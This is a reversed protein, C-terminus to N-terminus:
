RRFYTETYIFGIKKEELLKIAGSLALLEAGQIDMKLIDNKKLKKM